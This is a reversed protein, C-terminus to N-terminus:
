YKGNSSCYCYEKEDTYTDDDDIERLGLEDIFFNDLFDIVKYCNNYLIEEQSEKFLSKSNDETIMIVQDVNYTNLYKIIYEFEDLYYKPSDEKYCSGQLKKFLGYLRITEKQSLLTLKGVKEISIKQNFIENMHNEGKSMGYGNMM